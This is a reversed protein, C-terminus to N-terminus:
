RDHSTGGLLPIEVRLDVIPETLPERAVLEVTVGFEASALTGTAEGEGVALERGDASHVRVLLSPESSVVRFDGDFLPLIQTRYLVGDLGSPVTAIGHEDRPGVCFPARNIRSTWHLGFLREAEATVAAVDPAGHEAPDLRRAEIWWVFCGDVNGRVAVRDLVENLALPPDPLAIWGGSRHDRCNWLGRVVEVRFGALEFLATAEQASLEVTHEAHVWGLGETALRNPSDVVLVGGPRLVRYSENLFSAMEGARLHEINQGSFVVDVSADAVTPMHSASEAIWTVREGLGPPEPQFLEVGIHQAFPGACEDLWAFYWAGACGASLLAGGHVPLRRLEVTRLEHLVRYFHTDIMAITRDDVADITTRTPEGHLADRSARGAAVVRRTAASATRKVRGV